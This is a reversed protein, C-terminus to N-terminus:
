RQNPYHRRAITYTLLAVLAPALPYSVKVLISFPFGLFSEVHLTGGPYRMESDDM